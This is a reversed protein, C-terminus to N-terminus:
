VFTPKLDENFNVVPQQSWGYLQEGTAESNLSDSSDYINQYCLECYPRHCYCFTEESSSSDTETYSSPSPLDSCTIPGHVEHGLHSSKRVPQSRAPHETAVTGHSKTTLLLGGNEKTQLEEEMQNGMEIAGNCRNRNAKAMLCCAPPPLSLQSSPPLNRRYYGYGRRRRTLYPSLSMCVKRFGESAPPATEKHVSARRPRKPSAHGLGTEMSLEKLIEQLKDSSVYNVQRSLREWDEHRVEPRHCLAASMNDPISVNRSNTTLRATTTSCDTPESDSPQFYHRVKMADSPEELQYVPSMDVQVEEVDAGPGLGAGAESGALAEKPGTSTPEPATVESHLNASISSSRIFVNGAEMIEFSEELKLLKVLKEKASTVQEQLSEIVANKETLLRKMSTNEGLLHYIQEESYMSRFSRSPSNFYKAMQVVSNSQEEEFQRCQLLQPIFILCNITTTCILISSSTIGFVLNSWTHFYRHILLAAGTGLVALSSGVMIVLSQNVPPTSISHTLGSLYSGYILLAGKFGGLIGIWLDTYRSACYNIRTLACFTGQDASRISAAATRVCLVPDTLVWILILVTDAFLLLAVLGLLTLDKIIVRKDPLRHSFVKHLRWSKGLLPGFVLTVGVYLLGIRAQIITEMSVAPEQVVFLFASIYTLTSGILIVLNLNPSSMKVIRNGRFRLTFIFFFASLLIGCSLLSGSVGLVAASIPPRAPAKSVRCIEQLVWLAEERDVTTELLSQSLATCNLAPEM